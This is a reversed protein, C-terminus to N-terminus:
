DSLVDYANSISKFKEEDSRSSEQSKKTDPHYKKALQYFAQKIEAETANESVGL